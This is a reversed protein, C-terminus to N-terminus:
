LMLPKVFARHLTVPRTLIFDIHTKPNITTQSHKLKFKDLLCVRSICALWHQICLISWKRNASEFLIISVKGQREPQVILTGKTYHVNLSQVM